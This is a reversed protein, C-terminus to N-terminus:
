RVFVTRQESVARGFRDTGSITLIAGGPPLTLTSQFHGNQDTLLPGGDLTVGQTHTATGSIIILGTDFSEGNKPSTLALQPGSILPWAEHVGYLVVIFLVLVTAFRVLM